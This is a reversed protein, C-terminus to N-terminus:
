KQGNNNEFATKSLLCWKQGFHLYRRLQKTPQGRYFKRKIKDAIDDLKEGRPLGLLLTTYASRYNHQHTLYEINWCNRCKFCSSNGRPLYLVKCRRGCTPCSMLAMLKGNHLVGEDLRISHEGFSKDSKFNINITPLGDMREFFEVFYNVKLYWFRNRLFFEGDKGIPEPADLSYDMCEQREQQNLPILLKKGFDSLRLKFCDDDLTKEIDNGLLDKM